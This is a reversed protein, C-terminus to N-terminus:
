PAINLAIKQGAAAECRRLLAQGRCMEPITWKTAIPQTWTAVIYDQLWSVIEAPPEIATQHVINGGAGCPVTNIYQTVPESLETPLYLSFGYPEKIDRPGIVRGDDAVFVPLGYSSTSHEDTFTGLIIPKGYPRIELRTKM